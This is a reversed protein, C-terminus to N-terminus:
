RKLKRKYYCALMTIIVTGVLLLVTLPALSYITLPFLQGTDEESVGTGTIGEMDATSFVISTVPGIGAGNFAALSCTYNADLLLENVSINTAITTASYFLENLSHTINNCQFRYGTILGNMKDPDPSSWTFTYTNNGSQRFLLDLPPGSPAVYM